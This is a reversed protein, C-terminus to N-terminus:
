PKTTRSITSSKLRGAAGLPKPPEPEQKIPPPHHGNSVPQAQYSLRSKASSPAAASFFFFDVIFPHKFVNKGFNYLDSPNKM